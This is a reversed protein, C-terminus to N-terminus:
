RCTRVLDQVKRRSENLPMGRWASARVGFTRQFTRCFHSLNDFGSRYCSDSVNRGSWLLETAVRLRSRVVYQHPSLGVYRRFAHTLRTSTMGVARARHAISLRADPQLEISRCTTVIAEVDDPRAAYRGRSGASAADDDLAVLAALAWREMEFADGSQAAVKLRRDTYAVRPTAVERAMWGIRRWPDDADRVAQESFSVSECVDTPCEDGHHCRFVLGPRTLFISGSSLRRRVGDIVVDFNGARVFGITWRDATEEEPDSHAQDPPHDFRGIALDDTTHILEYRNV